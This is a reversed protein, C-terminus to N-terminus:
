SNFCALFRNYHFNHEETDKEEILAILAKCLFKSEQENLSNILMIIRQSNSNSPSVSDSIITNNIKSMEKRLNSVVIDYDSSTKSKNEVINYNEDAYSKEKIISNITSFFEYSEKADEATNHFMTSDIFYYVQNGIVKKSDIVMNESVMTYNKVDTFEGNRDRLTFVLLTDLEEPYIRLNNNKFGYGKSVNKAKM